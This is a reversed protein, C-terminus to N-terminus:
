LTYYNIVPSDWIYSSNYSWQLPLSEHREHIKKIEPLISTRFSLNKIPSNNLTYKLKETPPLEFFKRTANKLKSLVETSIELNVLRILGWEEVADCVMNEINHDNWNSIDIM